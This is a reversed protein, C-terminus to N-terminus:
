HRQYIGAMCKRHEASYHGQVRVAGGRAFYALDLTACPSQLIPVGSAPSKMREPDIGVV